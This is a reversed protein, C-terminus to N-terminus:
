RQTGDKDTNVPGAKARYVHFELDISSNAYLIQKRQGETVRFVRLLEYDREIWPYEVQGDSALFERPRLVLFTPRLYYMMWILSHEQPHERLYRVVRRSCLGPYDYVTGRSYYGVYGLSESGITEGPKQLRGLYRGIQEREGNEVYRQISRDSPITRPLILILAAIYAVGLQATIRSRAPQELLYAITWWAGYASGIVAVATVPATYWLFICNAAFTLYLSYAGLFAYIPLADFHRKGIAVLLGPLAVLVALRSIWFHDWFSVFGSGGNGGYAPGLSAFVTWFRAQLVVLKGPISKGQLQWAVSPIGLSKAIITNPVPSGYYLFTFILWPAYLIALGAAVPVLSRWVRSKWSRWVELGLAMGVWIAADPRALMAFGLSLGKQWQTGRQLCDISWLYAVTVVQTEMGAMGWMIQHHEFALYAAVTLALTRPLGLNLCVRAGLWAAIGGCLASLLKLFPLGLGVHVLDAVLPLLVSLPSTFGHLPPEGPQVHTLGLGRAANESHLVTILADEWTRGTYFWYFLRILVASV